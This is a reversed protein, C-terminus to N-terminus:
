ANALPHAPWCGALAHIDTKPTHLTCVSRCLGRFPLIVSQFAAPYVDYHPCEVRLRQIRTYQLATSVTPVALTGTDMTDPIMNM